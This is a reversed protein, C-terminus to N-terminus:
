LEDKLVAQKDIIHSANRKRLLKENEESDMPKKSLGVVKM